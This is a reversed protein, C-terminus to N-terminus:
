ARASCHLLLGPRPRQHARAHFAPVHAHLPDDLGLHRVARGAAAHPPAAEELAAPDTAAPACARRLTARLDARGGPRPRYRRTPVEAAAPTLRAIARKAERWRPQSM